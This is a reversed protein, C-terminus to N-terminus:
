CVLGDVCRASSAKLCATGLGEQKGGIWLAQMTPPPKDLTSRLSMAFRCRSAVDRLSAVFSRGQCTAVLWLSLLSIPPCCVALCGSLWVATGRVGSLTAGREVACCFRVWCWRCVLGSMPCSIALNGIDWWCRRDRCCCLVVLLCCRGWGRVLWGGDLVCRSMFSCLV